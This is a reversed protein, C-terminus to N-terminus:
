FSAIIFQTLIDRAEYTPFHGIGPLITADTGLAKSMAFLAEPPAVPDVAGGILRVTAGGPCLFSLIDSACLMKWAQLYADEPISAMTAIIERLDTPDVDPGVISDTRAEAFQRMGRSLIEEIRDNRAADCQEKPLSGAGTVPCVLDLQAVRQPYAQALAAVVIAGLSHGVVHAAEVGRRELFDDLRAAYDEAIPSPSAIASAGDYGPFSWVLVHHLKALSSLIPVWNASTGGIGHVLVLPLGSGAELWSHGDKKQLVCDLKTM